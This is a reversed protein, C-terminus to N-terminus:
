KLASFARFLLQLRQFEATLNALFDRCDDADTAAVLGDDVYLVVILKRGNNQRVYLCPDADSMVFGLKLLYDVFRKNRCRPAQKLGYLSRQLQCVRGSGDYGEPQKMYIEEKLTGYLFATKVDFQALYMNETAAVSLVSRMTDFRAV